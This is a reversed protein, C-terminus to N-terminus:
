GQSMAPASASASNKLERVLDHLTDCAITTSGYLLRWGDKGLLEVSPCDACTDRDDRVSRFGSRELARATWRRQLSDGGILRIPGGGDRRLKFSGHSPDFEIGEDAFARAFSGDLVLDEPAGTVLSGDAHMLWIRDATRLALDLDHTSILVSREGQGALRRLLGAMEIRRPLDLFATIEDLIMLRPEQALARALMVRQREGDSLESVFRDSFAQAGASEIAERVAEHDKATLTGFWRTHPFRGLSAMAYGTLLGATVRETLVVSLRAARQNPTLARIDVGDLLVSGNLPAQMGAITRMLTSKGAGNPGLLCVFEGDELNLNINRAVSTMGQRSRYGIELNGAVLM